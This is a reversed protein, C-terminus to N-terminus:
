SIYKNTTHSPTCDSLLRSISRIFASCGVEHDFRLESSCATHLSTPLEEDSKVVGCTLLVIPSGM